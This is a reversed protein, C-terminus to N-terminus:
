AEGMYQKIDTPRSYNAANQLLLNTRRIHNYDTTYNGDSTPVTNTGKSYVNVSSYTMLDSRSDSHPSGDNYISPFDTTWTYFNNAFNEYDSVSTWMKDGGLQDQPQMDLCSCFSLSALAFLAFKINKCKM